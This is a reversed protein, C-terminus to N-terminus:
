PNGKPFRSGWTGMMVANSLNGAELQRESKLYPSRLRREM